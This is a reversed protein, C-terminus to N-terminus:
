SKQKDKRRGGGILLWFWVFLVRPDPIQKRQRYEDQLQNQIRVEFYAKHNMHKKIAM